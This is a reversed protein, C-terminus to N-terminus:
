LQVITISRSLTSSGLWEVSVDHKGAPLELEGTSVDLDVVQVAKKSITYSVSQTTRSFEAVRPAVATTTTAIPAGDIKLVVKTADPNKVTRGIPSINWAAVNFEITDGPAYQALWGSTMIPMPLFYPSALLLILLLSIFFKKM